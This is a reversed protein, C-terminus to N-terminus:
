HLGHPEGKEIAHIMGLIVEHDQYNKKLAVRVGRMEVTLDLVADYLKPAEVGVETRLHRHNVADNADRANRYTRLMLALMAPAAGIIAVMAIGLLWIIILHADGSSPM